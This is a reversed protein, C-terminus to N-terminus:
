RSVTITWAGDARVALSAARRDWTVTGDYVGIENVLTVMEAGDAKSPRVIFNREGRHTLKAKTYAKGTIASVDVVDDGNGRYTVPSLSPTATPSRSSSGSGGCALAALALVAVVILVAYRCRSM